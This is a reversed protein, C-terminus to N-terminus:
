LWGMGAGYKGYLDDLANFVYTLGAYNGKSIILVYKHFEDGGDKWYIDMDAVSKQVKAKLKIAKMVDKPNLKDNFSIKFEKGQKFDKDVFAWSHLMFKINKLMDTRFAQTYNENLFEEFNKM